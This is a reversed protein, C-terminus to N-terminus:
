GWDKEDNPVDIIGALTAAHNGAPMIQRTKPKRPM